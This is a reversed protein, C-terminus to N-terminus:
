KLIRERFRAVEEETLDIEVRKHPNTFGAVIKVNSKAIGLEKALFEILYVNARGDQAPAKIKANLKGAANYFLQDVRSGPKVTLHLTM